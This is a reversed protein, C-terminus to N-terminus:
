FSILFKIVQASISLLGTLTPSVELLGAEVLTVVSKSGALAVSEKQSKCCEWLLQIEDQAAEPNKLIISELKRFAGEVVSKNESNALKYKIEEM